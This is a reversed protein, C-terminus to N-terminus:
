VYPLFPPGGLPRVHIEYSSYPFGKRIAAGFDGMVASTVESCTTAEILIKEGNGEFIKYFSDKTVMPKLTQLQDLLTSATEDTAACKTVIIRIYGMKLGASEKPASEKPATEKPIALPTRKAKIAKPKQSQSKVPQPRNGLSYPCRPPRLSASRTTAVM